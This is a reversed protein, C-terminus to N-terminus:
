DESADEDADQVMEAGAYYAAILAVAEAQTTVGLKSYVRAKYTAATNPTVDMHDAIERVSSGLALLKLAEQERQSLGMKYDSTVFSRKPFLTFKGIKIPAISKGKETTCNLM